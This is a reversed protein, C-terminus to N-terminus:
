IESTGNQILVFVEPCSVPGAGMKGEVNPINFGGTSWDLTEQTSM